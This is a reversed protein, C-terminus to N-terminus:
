RRQAYFKYYKDFFGLLTMLFIVFPFMALLLKYTLANAFYIIENEEFKKIFEMSYYKIKKIVNGM